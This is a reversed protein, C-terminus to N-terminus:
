ASLWHELRMVEHLGCRKALSISPTNTADVVYRVRLGRSANDALAARVLASAHGARRAPPSVYLSGIEHLTPSNPFSLAIAVPTSEVRSLLCRASGDAFMTELERQGYVDHAALLPYAESPIRATSQVGLPLDTQNVFGFAAEDTPIFTCLARQYSLTPLASRLAAILDRECTKVVFRDAAASFLIAHVCAAIMADSHVATLVPFIVLTADPYNATDWQSASRPMLLLFAREGNASIPVTRMHDRFLALMKLPTIHRLEDEALFAELDANSTSVPLRVQQPPASFLDAHGPCNCVAATGGEGSAIESLKGSYDAVDAAVAGGRGM